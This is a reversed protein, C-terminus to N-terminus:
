PGNQALRNSATLHERDQCLAGADEECQSRSVPWQFVTGMGRWKQGGGGPSDGMQRGRYERRQKDRERRKQKIKFINKNEEWRRGERPVPSPNEVQSLDSLYDTGHSVSLM